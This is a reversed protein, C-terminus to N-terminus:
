FKIRSNNNDPAPEFLGQWGGAISNELAQNANGEKKNEFKTLKSICGKIITETLPKKAEKRMTVFDNWLNAEIFDPIELKSKLKSKCEVNDNVNDNDNVNPTLKPNAQPKKPTKKNKPRGGKTGHEAGKCGNKFKKKNADLQPRILTFITKSIGELKPENFNLSFDFISRYIELQNKDPLDGIAEYFSRYCIFSDRKDTTNTM